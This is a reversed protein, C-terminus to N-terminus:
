SLYGARTRRYNDIDDKIEFTHIANSYLNICMAHEPPLFLVKPDGFEKFEPDSIANGLIAENSAFAVIGCSHYHFVAVEGYRRFIWLLYPDKRDVFACAMSGYLMGYMNSIAAPMELGTKSVMYDLLRFIIESDVEGKRAIVNEYAMFIDDDNDIMGNHIGVIRGAIIPHNNDNNKYTGKTEQRCHGLVSITGNKGQMNLYSSNAFQFEKSKIMDSAPVPGKIVNIDERSVYAAGTADFGRIATEELMNAFLSQLLSVDKMTCGNQIGIGAIGCM